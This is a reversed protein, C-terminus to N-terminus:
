GLNERVFTKLNEIGTEDSLDIRATSKTNVGSGYSIILIPWNRTLGDVQVYKKPAGGPQWPKKRQIFLQVLGVDQEAHPYTGDYGLKLFEAALWVMMDSMIRFTIPRDTDEFLTKLKM